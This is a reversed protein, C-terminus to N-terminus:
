FVIENAEFFEIIAKSIIVWDLAIEAANEKIYEIAWTTAAIEDPLNFYEFYLEKRRAETVGAALEEQIFVKMDDSYAIDEDELDDWTEAHGVEHLLSILFTDIAVDKWISHIFDQFYKSSRDTVTLSFNVRDKAFEYSFDSSLCSTLEFPALFKNITNELKNAGKIIKM